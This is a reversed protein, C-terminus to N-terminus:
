YKFMNVELSFCDALKFIAAFAPGRGDRVQVEGSDGAGQRRVSCVAECAQSGEPVHRWCRVLVIISQLHSRM